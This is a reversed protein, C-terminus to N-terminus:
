SALQRQAKREKIRVAEPAAQALAQASRDESKRWLADVLTNQGPEMPDTVRALHSPHGNASLVPLGRANPREDERYEFCDAGALVQDLPFLEIQVSRAALEAPDHELAFQGIADRKRRRKTLPATKVLTPATSIPALLGATTLMKIGDRVAAARDDSLTLAMDAVRAKAELGLLVAQSVVEPTYLALAGEGLLLCGIGECVACEPAVLHSRRNVCSPCLRRM